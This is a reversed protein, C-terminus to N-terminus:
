SQAPKYRPEVFVPPHLYIPIAPAPSQGGRFRALALMAVTRAAPLRRAEVIRAGTSVCEKLSLDIRSWDPTVRLADRRIERDLDGPTSLFYPRVISVAGASVDFEAAWLRGRRADGVVAVHPTGYESSADWAMAEGSSVGCVPKGAPLAMGQAGAVANRLGSFSGPGLGVAYLGIQAPPVGARELFRPLVTFLHQNHLGSDEWSTEAMLRGDDLLALSGVSTSQDIGLTLM